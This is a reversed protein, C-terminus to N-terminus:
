PEPPSRPEERKLRRAADVVAGPREEFAFHGVGAVSDLGFTPLSDRLLEIEDPPIAGEHPAAGLVLLVPCHIRSLSTILLEPETSEAMGSFADITANLDRLVDATYGDVVEDTIWAPDASSAELRRRLFARIPGRDRVLRLLPAFRMASRVVPTLTAEAPGGDLLVIAAVLDPRRVALRLAISGGLSHAIVLASDLGLTDLVAAVRAAQATLSYDADRPRASKGIGLPEVVITQFGEDVLMPTVRRFGFATGFLGPLLVVPAGRGTISVSVTEGAAVRVNVVTTTDAVVLLALLWM